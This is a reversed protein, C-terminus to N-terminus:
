RTGDLEDALGDLGRRLRSNVTGRPLELARAIEGPSLELLYRMVIVARQEPTLHGLAEIVDTSCELLEREPRAASHGVADVGVERRLARARAFDIARNVAIRHLWPALPRRRDFRPLARVAALFAEQAIDEAGARDGAVLYAARYLAPWHRRFLTEMARESGHQAARVLAADSPERDARLMQSRVLGRLASRGTLASRDASKASISM